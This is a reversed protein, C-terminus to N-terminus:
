GEVNSFELPTAGDSNMRWLYYPRIAYYEKSLGIAALLRYYWYRLEARTWNWNWRKTTEQIM